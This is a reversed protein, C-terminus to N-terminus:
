LNKVRDQLQVLQQLLPRSAARLNQESVEIMRTASGLSFVQTGLGVVVAAWFAVPVAFRLCRICSGTLAVGAVVACVGAASLKWYPELGELYQPYFSSALIMLVSATGALAFLPTARGFPNLLKFLMRAFLLFLVLGAALAGNQGLGAEMAGIAEALTGFFQM